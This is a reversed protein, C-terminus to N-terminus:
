APRSARDPFSACGSLRASPARGRRRGHSPTRPRTRHSDPLATRAWPPLRPPGAIGQASCHCTFGPFLVLARFSDEYDVIVFVVHFDKARPELRPAVLNLACGVTLGSQFHDLSPNGVENQQVHHELVRHPTALGNRTSHTVDVM